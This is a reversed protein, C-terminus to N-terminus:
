ESEGSESASAIERSRVMPNIGKKRHAVTHLKTREM